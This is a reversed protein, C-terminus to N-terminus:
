DAMVDAERAVPGWKADQARILAALEARTSGVAEAGLERLRAVVAPDRAMSVAAQELRAALAEPLGKPAM